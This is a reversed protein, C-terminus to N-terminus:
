WLSNGPIADTEDLSRRNWFAMEQTRQPCSFAKHCRGTWRTISLQETTSEEELNYDHMTKEATNKDNQDRLEITLLIQDSIQWCAFSPLNGTTEQHPKAGTGGWDMASPRIKSMCLDQDVQQNFCASASDAEQDRCKPDSAKPFPWIQSM